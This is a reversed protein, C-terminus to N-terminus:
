FLRSKKEADHLRAVEARADGLERQDRELQSQLALMKVEAAQCRDRWNERSNQLDRIRITAAKLKKKRVNAKAKWRDRGTVLKPILIRPPTQFSSRTATTADDMVMEQKFLFEQIWEDCDM